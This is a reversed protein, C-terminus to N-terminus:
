LKIFIKKIEMYRLALWNLGLFLALAALVYWLPADRPVWAKLPQEIMGHLIYGALANRGLTNFVGVEGGLERDSWVFLLAVALAFGAAFTLYSVSGSRQSMTWVNVPRSPAVFPPEVLVEAATAAHNPPTVRNLCALGYGGLMLVVAFLGLPLLRPRDATLVDCALSGVLLPVTWTLFGLPGGDIGNPPTNVWPYYGAQSIVLHAAASAAAFALRVWGPAAIVPLVWLSTVGIHVLTQFLDRKLGAALTPWLKPGTLESWSALGHGLGYVVAGIVILALNRRLAHRAATGWGDALQRRRFTLRYAFGVAFFFQPMITDAYSCYTNHHKLWAPIAQFSGVFNVVFMALVTYGRYQDLWVLRPSSSPQSM